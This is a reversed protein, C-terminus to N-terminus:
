FQISAACESCGGPESTLLDYNRDPVVINSFIATADLLEQLISAVRMAVTPGSQSNIRAVEGDENYEVEITEGNSSVISPKNFKEEYQISVKKGSVKNGLEIIKGDRSYKISLDQADTKVNSLNGFEDYTAVGLTQWNADQKKEIRNVKNVINDYHQRTEGDPTKKSILRGFGDYGYTTVGSIDEVKLPLCLCQTLEYVTEVGDIALRLRRDQYDFSYVRTNSDDGNKIRQVVKPIGNAPDGSFEWTYEENGRKISERIESGARYKILTPELKPDCSFRTMLHNEDYGYEYIIKGLQAVSILNGSADYDYEYQTGDTFSVRVVRGAADYHYQQGHDGDRIVAIRNQLDYDLNLSRNDAQISRLQGRSNFQYKTSGISFEVGGSIYRSRVVDFDGGIYSPGSDPLVRNVLDPLELLKNLPFDLIEPRSVHASLRRKIEVCDVVSELTLRVGQPNWVFLRCLNSANLDITYDTTTSWGYGFIGSKANRSSVYVRKVGLWTQLSPLLPRDLDMRAYRKSREYWREPSAAVNFMTTLSPGLDSAVLPGVANAPARVIEMFSRFQATRALFLKILDIEVAYQEDSGRARNTIMGVVFNSTKDFVPSGSQGARPMVGKLVLNAGEVGSIMGDDRRLGGGAPYGYTYIDVGRNPLSQSAGLRVSAFAGSIAGADAELVALDVGQEATFSLIIRCPLTREEPGLDISCPPPTPDRGAVVHGATLLYLRRGETFIVFATGSEVSKVRFVSLRTTPEDARAHWSVAIALLMMPLVLLQRM